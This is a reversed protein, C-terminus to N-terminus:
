SIFKIKSNKSVKKSRGEKSFLKRVTINLM